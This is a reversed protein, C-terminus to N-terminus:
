VPCSAPDGYGLRAMERHCLAILWRESLAPLYKRWREAASPDIGSRAQKPLYSSNHVVQDLMNPQFEIGVFDCV